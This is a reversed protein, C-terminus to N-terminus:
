TTENSSYGLKTAYIGALQLTIEFYREGNVFFPTKKQIYYRTQRLNKASLDIAAISSAVMEFYETDLTDACLPFEELNDM